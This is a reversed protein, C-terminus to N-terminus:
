HGGPIREGTLLLGLVADSRWLGREGERIRRLLEQTHQQAVHIIEIAM